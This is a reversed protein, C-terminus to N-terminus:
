GSGIAIVQDSLDSIRMSLRNAGAIRASKSQNDMLEITSEATGALEHETASIHSLVLCEVARLRAVIDDLRTKLEDNM